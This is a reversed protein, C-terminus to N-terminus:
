TKGRQFDYIKGREGFDIGQLHFLNIKGKKKRQGYRVAYPIVTAQDSILSWSGAM